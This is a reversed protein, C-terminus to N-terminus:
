SLHIQEAWDTVVGDPELALVAEQQKRKEIWVVFQLGRDRALDRVQENARKAHVSVLDAGLDATDEVYKITSRLSSTNRLLGITANPALERARAVLDPSRVWLDLGHSLRNLDLTFSAELAQEVKLDLVVGLGVADAADVADELTPLSESSKRAELDEFSESSTWRVPCISRATRWPILDHSLVPVGDRTVRVDLEVADAGAAPAAAISSVLNEASDQTVARHAIIRM